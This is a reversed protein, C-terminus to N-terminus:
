FCLAGPVSPEPELTCTRLSSGLRGTGHHVRARSFVSSFVEPLQPGSPVQASWVELELPVLDPATRSGPHQGGELRAGTFHLAFGLM